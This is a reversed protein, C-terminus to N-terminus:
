NKVRKAKRISGVRLYDAQEICNETLELDTYFERELLEQEGPVDCYREDKFDDPPYGEVPDRKVESDHADVGEKLIYHFYNPRYYEIAAKKNALLWDIVEKVAKSKGTKRLSTAQPLNQWIEIAVARRFNDKDLMRKRGLLGESLKKANTIRRYVTNASYNRKEVKENYKEIQVKLQPMDEYHFPALFSSLLFESPYKTKLTYKDRFPPLKRVSKYGALWENFNIPKLPQKLLLGSGNLYSKLVQIQSNLINMVRTKNVKSKEFYLAFSYKKRNGVEIKKPKRKKNLKGTKNEFFIGELKLAIEEPEDHELDYFIVVDWPEKIIAGYPPVAIQFNEPSEEISRYPFCSWDKILKLDEDKSEVFARWNTKVRPSILLAVILFGFKLSVQHLQEVIAKEGNNLKRFPNGLELVMQEYVRHDLGDKIVTKHHSYVLCNALKVLSGLYRSEDDREYTSILHYKYDIQRLWPLIKKTEVLLGEDGRLRDVVSCSAYVYAWWEQYRREKELKLEEM